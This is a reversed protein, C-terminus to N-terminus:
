REALRTGAMAQDLLSSYRRDFEVLLDGYM